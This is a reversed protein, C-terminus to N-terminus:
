GCTAPRLSGPVKHVENPSTNNPPIKAPPIKKAPSRRVVYRRPNEGPSNPPLGGSWVADPIKAPPTSHHFVEQCLTNSKRPLTPIPRILM